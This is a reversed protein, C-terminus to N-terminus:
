EYNYDRTHCKPNNNGSGQGASDRLFGILLDEPHHKICNVASMGSEFYTDTKLNTQYGFFYEQLPAPPLCQQLQRCPIGPLTHNYLM